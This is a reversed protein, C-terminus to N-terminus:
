LRKLQMKSFDRDKLGTDYQLKEVILRTKHNKKLNRMEAWFSQVYKGVTKFEKRILLKWKTESKDYYEARDFLFDKKRIWVKLKSYDWDRGPKARLVLIHHDTDESKEDVNYKLSFREISMDDYSFDTGAFNEKKVSGTIRRIKHFAPMYLYMKDEGADLFGIGKMDAPSLFKVLLRDDGKRLIKLRRESTSGDKDVVVMKLEATTDKAGYEAEDLKKLIEECELAFVTGSALFVAVLIWVSAIKVKM